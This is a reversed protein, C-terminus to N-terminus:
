TAKVAVFESSSAKCASLEPNDLMTATAETQLVKGLTAETQLVKGLTAETQLVKGLTAEAKGLTAEAKGLTAEAKNLKIEVSPAPTRAPPVDVVFHEKEKHPSSVKIDICGSHSHCNRGQLCKYGMYAVGLVIAGIGGGAFNKLLTDDSM